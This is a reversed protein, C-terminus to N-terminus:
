HGMTKISSYQELIENLIIDEHDMWSIAFSLIEKKRMASYYGMTYVPHPLLLNVTKGM